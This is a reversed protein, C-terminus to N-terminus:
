GTYAPRAAVPAAAPPRGPAGPDAPPPGLPRDAVVVEVAGIDCRDGQPRPIGRQDTAVTTPAAACDAGDLLPSGSAPAMTETPGGDDGLPGLLPDGAADLDDTAGGFGCSADSSLNAGQSTTVAGAALACDTGGGGPRAVVSGFSVLEDGGPQVEVNAGQPAENGAVTAHLLTISTNVVAVGGGGTGARNDAITSNTATVTQDAWVGGGSSSAENGSITTDVLTVRIAAVGGGTSAANGRVTSRVLTVSATDAEIGGGLGGPLDGGTITADTVTLDSDTEIVRADACTQRITAGNGVLTLPDAGTHHLAGAGCDDLLYTAGAELVIEDPEGNGSAEAVAARLSGAGGDATVTVVLEAASASPVVLGTAALLAGAGLALRWRATPRSSSSPVRGSGPQTRM